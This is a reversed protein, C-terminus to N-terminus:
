FLATDPDIKRAIYNTILVMIIGVLSQLFGVASSMGMDGVVRMTRFTFTNIVDTTEYLLGVNRPVNYFLGFDANFIGGIGLITFITILPILMPIIIYWIVKIRNAGDIEAAEFLSTDVGMLGAYYTVASMGIGKWLYTITLIAPWYKPEAYWDIIDLGLNKRITNMLGYQTNLFAFVMYAVIVYSIFNPTILVTQFIKTATRSRIEFLMIGLVVALITSSLMFWLNMVVTNRVIRVFVDSEFFYKFNDFGVWESGFIGLDYRYNKFAIVIGGMPLYNFIFVLLLPIAMLSWMQWDYKKIKLKKKVRKAEASKLKM